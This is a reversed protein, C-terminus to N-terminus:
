LLFSQIQIILSKFLYSPPKYNVYPNFNNIDIDLHLKNFLYISLFFILNSSSSEILTEFQFNILETESACCDFSSVLVCKKEVDVTCCTIPEDMKCCSMDKYDNCSKVSDGLFFRVSDGCNLESINVGISLVFVLISMSVAFINQFFIRM